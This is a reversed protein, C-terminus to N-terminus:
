LYVGEEELKLMDAKKKQDESVILGQPFLLTSQLEEFYSMHHSSVLEVSPSVCCREVGECSPKWLNSNFTCLNGQM